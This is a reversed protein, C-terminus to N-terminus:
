RTVLERYVAVTAAAVQQHTFHALVRARGQVALGERLGPSAQLSHLARQLAQVDGEPFVIGGDGMVDAIAGSSSGIVPVGSSMAEVLVRGFQEKWHPRTLSPLVLADLTHMQAPMETSAVQGVWVIRQTIGLQAAQAALTARQPGGGVIRLQWEGPLAAAAELLLHVGKESVLRGIYGITFPRDPRASLPQFLDPDTGFQPIVALKGRYGKARWVQAASDTGMLAYDVTNLVWREGWAFPPPYRRAINQWSFFLTKAGMRQAHVLAQWTALNYPEEDIHVIHPVFAAIHAGLTPYHHLHFNGNLRLPIAELRYGDTYVRELRQEGREDRWSPPVLTLLDISHQAIHELKRQYIGVVCAKSLMLVRLREASM